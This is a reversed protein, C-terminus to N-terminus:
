STKSFRYLLVNHKHVELVDDILAKQYRIYGFVEWPKANTDPKLKRTISKLEPYQWNLINIFIGDYKHEREYWVKISYWKKFEQIMVYLQMLTYHTLPDVGLANTSIKSTAKPFIDFVFDFLKFILNRRSQVIEKVRPPPAKDISEKFSPNTKYAEILFGYDEDTIEHWELIQKLLNYYWEDSSFTEIKILEMESPTAQLLKLYNLIRGIQRNDSYLNSEPTENIDRALDWCLLVKIWNHDELEHQKKIQKRLVVLITKALALANYTKTLKKYEWWVMLLVWAENSELNDDTFPSYKIFDSNLGYSRPEERKYVRKRESGASPKILPRM